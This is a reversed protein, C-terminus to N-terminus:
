IEFILGHSILDFISLSEIAGKEMKKEFIRKFM